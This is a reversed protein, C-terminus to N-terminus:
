DLFEKWFDKRFTSLVKINIERRFTTAYIVELFEKSTIAKQIKELNEINDVIASCWQTMAYQGSYDIVSGTNYAHQFIVKSIGFHGNTNINSYRLKLEGSISISYVCPHKFEETKEKSVWMKDAGYNSRSYILDVKEEGPKATLSKIKSFLANPIFEMDSIDVIEITGDQCKITTLNVNYDSNKICYFDYRTNAGFTKIGDKEDHIELFQLQKSRILKQLDKFTGDINRWGSPHVAVMYGDEILIDLTKFVFKDWLTHGAGKNSSSSQYPPNQVIVDFKEVGWVDKAHHDFDESLFNGTYVNLEFEDNPDFACLFLFMNKPQLEGVHLMNEVIHKYRLEDDPEFDKLGEMLREVIVCSFIGVGSCPDLWKLNPNTWVDSPLTNMMDNVLSIPTMVEGLTKKEVEGVVVYKRMMEVVNKIHQTKTVKNEKITNKIKVFMDRDKDLISLIAMRKKNTSLGKLTEAIEHDLGAVEAMMMQDILEEYQNKQRRTM